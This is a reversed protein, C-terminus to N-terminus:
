KKGLALILALLEAHQAKLEAFYNTLAKELRDFRVDIEDLRADLRDVPRERPEPNM